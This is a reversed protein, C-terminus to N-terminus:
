RAHLRARAERIDQIGVMARNTFKAGGHELVKRYEADALDICGARLAGDAFTLLAAVQGEMYKALFQNYDNAYRVDENLASALAENYPFAQSQGQTIQALHINQEALKNHIGNQESLQSLWQDLHNTSCSVTLHEAVSRLGVDLVRILELRRAVEQDRIKQL